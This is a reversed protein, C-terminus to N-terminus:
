PTRRDPRDADALQQGADLPELLQEGGLPEEGGVALARQGEQRSVTPSM